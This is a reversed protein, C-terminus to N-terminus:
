LDYQTEKRYNLDDGQDDIISSDDTHLSSYFSDDNEFDVWDRYNM